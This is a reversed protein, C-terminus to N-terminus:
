EGGSRPPIADPSVTINTPQVEPVLPIPVIEATPTNVPPGETDSPGGAGLEAKKEIIEFTVTKRANCAVATRDDLSSRIESEIPAITISPPGGAVGPRVVAKEGPHLVQGGVDKGSSRVTVDGELLYFTTEKASTQIAMKGGRINISGQPTSYGMTSGSVLASTCLAVFGHAVFVDSQSISPENTTSNREPQFPEQVFRDVEVRTSGDVYMGTGNSYVFAQHADENTEIITGPADFATAQKPEYVKGETQIQGEGSTEALYIKSTPGKKKGLQRQAYVTPTLALALATTLLIIQKPTKMAPNPHIVNQLASPVLVEVGM